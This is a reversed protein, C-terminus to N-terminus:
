KNLLYQLGKIAKIAKDNGKDALYKLGKIAKEINEKSQPTIFTPEVYRLIDGKQLEYEFDNISYYFNDELTNTKTNLVEVTILPFPSKVISIITDIFDPSIPNDYLKIFRDGVKYNLTNTTSPIIPQTIKRYIPEIPTPPTPSFQSNFLKVIYQGNKSGSKFFINDESQPLSLYTNLLKQNFQIVDRDDTIVPMILALNSEDNWERDYEFLEYSISVNLDKKLVIQGGQQESTYLKFNGNFNGQQPIDNEFKFTINDKADEGKLSSIVELVRKKNISLVMDTSSYIVSKYNPPKADVSNTIYRVDGQVFSYFEEDDTTSVDCVGNMNSIIYHQNKANLLVKNINKINSSVVDHSYLIYSNTAFIQLKDGNSVYGIGMLTPRLEDDGVFDKAEKLYESLELSNVFGIDNYNKALIGIPFNDLKENTNKFAGSVIEYIGDEINVNQISILQKFDHAVALNDKVYIYDLIPMRPSNGAIRKLMDFHIESIYPLEKSTLYYDFYAISGDSNHIENDEFSYYVNIETKFDIDRAGLFDDYIAFPMLLAFDGKGIASKPNQAFDIETTFYMSKSQSIYGGKITKNGLKLFTDLVDVLMSANFSIRKSEQGSQVLFIIQNTVSNCYKGKMVAECYTKLKVLDIDCVIETSDHIIVQWEPFKENIKGIKRKTKKSIKPSILYLGSDLSGKNQLHILRHADTAVLSKEDVYLGNQAPRLSDENFFPEFIGIFKPDTLNYKIDVKSVKKIVKWPNPLADWNNAQILDIKYNAM